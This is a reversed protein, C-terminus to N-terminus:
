YSAKVAIGVSDSNWQVGVGNGWNEYSARGPGVEFINGNGDGVMIGLNKAAQSPTYTGPEALTPVAFLSNYANATSEKKQVSITQSLDRTQPLSVGFIGQGVISGLESNQVETLGTELDKLQIM